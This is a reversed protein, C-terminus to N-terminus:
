SHNCKPTTQLFYMSGVGRGSIDEFSNYGTLSFVNEFKSSTNKSLHETLLILDAKYLEAHTELENLKNSLSDLNTYLINLPTTNKDDIHKYKNKDKLCNKLKKKNFNRKKNYKKTKKKIKTILKPKSGNDLRM